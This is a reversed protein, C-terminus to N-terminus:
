TSYFVGGQNKLWSLFAQRKKPRTSAEKVLTRELDKQVQYGNRIQYGNGYFNDGSDFDSLETEHGPGLENIETDYLLWHFTAKHADDISRRRTLMSEFWLLDLIVDQAPIVKTTRLLHTLDGQIQELSAQQAHAATRQQNHSASLETQIVKIISNRVRCLDQRSGQVYKRQTKM